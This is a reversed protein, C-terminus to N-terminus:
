SVGLKRPEWFVVDFAMLVDFDIVCAGGVNMFNWACLAFYAQETPNAAATSFLTPDNVIDGKRGFYKATDFSFTVTKVREGTGGASVNGDLVHTRMLGNEVLKIPDVGNGATDPALYVGFRCPNEAVATISISSRLVTCQEYFLMMQDFGMPQHGTGSINPDFMGNASFYYSGIQGSPPQIELGYEYYMMHHVQSRVPFVPISRADLAWPSPMSSMRGRRRSSKPKGKRQRAPVRTITTTKKEM